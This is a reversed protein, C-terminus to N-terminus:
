SGAGHYAAWAAPDRFGRYVMFPEAGHAEVQDRNVLRVERALASEPLRGAAVEAELRAREAAGEAEQLFESLDM